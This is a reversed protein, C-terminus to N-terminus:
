KDTETEKVIQAELTRLIWEKMSINRRLALAKILRRLEPPADVAIMIRTPKVEKM